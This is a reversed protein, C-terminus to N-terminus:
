QCLYVERKNEQKSFVLSTESSPLFHLHANTMSFTRKNVPKKSTATNDCESDNRKLLLLKLNKM